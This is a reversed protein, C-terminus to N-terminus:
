RIPIVKGMGDEKFATLLEEMIELLRAIPEALSDYEEQTYLGLPLYHEQALSYEEVLSAASLMQKDQVQRHEVLHETVWEIVRRQLVPHTASTVGRRGNKMPAFRMRYAIHKEAMALEAWRDFVAYIEALEEERHAPLLAGTFILKEAREDFGRNRLWAAYNGVLGHDALTPADQNRFIEDLM